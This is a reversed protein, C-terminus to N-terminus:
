RECGYATDDPGVICTDIGPGGYLTDKGRGGILLDNGPPGSGVASDDASAPTAVAHLVAVISSTIAAAPAQRGM